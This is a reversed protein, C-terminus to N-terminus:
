QDLADLMKQVEKSNGTDIDPRYEFTDTMAFGIFVGLFGIAVILVYANFSRDWFLHMFFLCVLSAKIVAIGMAVIINMDPLGYRAFDIKAAAVTIMTLVLLALCTAILYKAPVLHGVGHHEDHGSTDPTDHHDAM